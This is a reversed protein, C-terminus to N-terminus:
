SAERAHQEAARAQRDLAGVQKWVDPDRSGSPVSALMRRQQRRVPELRGAAHRGCLLCKGYMGGREVLPEDCACSRHAHEVSSCDHHYLGREGRWWPVPQRNGNRVNVPDGKRHRGGCWTCRTLAWRRLAQLAHIQVRFHHVHWRWGHLIRTRYSGDPLRDRRYHRCVEGSDKGGPERHWVTILAPFRLARGAVVPELRWSRPRWWPFPDRGTALAEAEVPSGPAPRFRTALHWRRGRAGWTTLQPWPRRIVFAVVMPDHM